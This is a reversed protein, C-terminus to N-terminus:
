QYSAILTAGASFEGSALSNGSKKVPVAILEPLKGPELKIRTGLVFPQGDRRIEIALNDSSTKVAAADWSVGEGDMSLYLNEDVDGDCSITYDIKKAYNVGNVKNVGVNNFEVQITEGNNIHCDPTNILTGHFRMNEVANAYFVCLPFYLIIFFLNRKM